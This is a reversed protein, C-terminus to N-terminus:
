SVKSSFARPVLLIQSIHNIGSGKWTASRWEGYVALPVPDQM